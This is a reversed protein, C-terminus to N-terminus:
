HPKFYDFPELCDRCHWLAKCPTSGFQSLVLTNHSQCYPCAVNTDDPISHAVCCAPPSIGAELLRQRGRETIWDTTWAPQLRNKIVVKQIGAREVTNRISAEIVRTAPCGSYTPTITIVVHIEQGLHHVEVDRIIGLDGISVTPIEPDTVSDLLELVQAHTTVPPLVASVV